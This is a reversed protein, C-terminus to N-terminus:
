KYMYPLLDETSNSVFKELAVKLLMYVHMFIPPAIYVHVHLSATFTRALLLMCEPLRRM